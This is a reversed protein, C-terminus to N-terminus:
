SKAPNADGAPMEFKLLGLRASRFSSSDRDYIIESFEFDTRGESRCKQEIIRIIKLKNALTTKAGFTLGVLDEFKYKLKREPIPNLDILNSHLVLRSEEEHSWESTKRMAGDVFGKWYAERWVAEDKKMVERCSSVAGDEGTYWFGDLDIVRIRGLSRFFDIEPYAESYSVKHLQLPRCERIASGGDKGGGWGVTHLLSLQAPESASGRMKFKLCAGAHNGGYTGWMSSNTDNASFCAVYWDPHILKELASLYGSPFYRFIFGWAQTAPDSKLSYEYMLDIQRMVSENAAFLAETLKEKDETQSIQNKVGEVMSIARERLADMESLPLGPPTVPLGAAAFVEMSIRLAFPHVSRFYGRLEDKRVPEARTGLTEVLKAVTPEALFRESAVKYHERIPAVPLNDPTQFVINELVDPKFDGGLIFCTTATNMLCLIYHRMLNRWVIKDGCWFLDKLGEAPDNLAATTSFFIEQRELEENKGLLADASRYRYYHNNM